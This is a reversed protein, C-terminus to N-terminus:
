LSQAITIDEKTTIKINSYSGKTIFVKKGIAEILQCDDTFDVNKQKANNVAKLYLNKEFIQPTQIIYVNERSPTNKVFGTEDIIKITDKSQVGLATADYKIANLISKKIDNQLIMPRAGDHIAIYETANSIQEVANFISQQRTQGGVVFKIPKKINYEELLAKITKIDNNTTVFLMEVIEDIYEFAMASKVVVPIQNIKVFLKNTGNMRSSSGGCAIILSFKKM